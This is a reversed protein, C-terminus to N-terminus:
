QLAADGSIGTDLKELGARHIIIGITRKLLDSTARGVENIERIKEKNSADSNGIQELVRLYAAFLECTMFAMLAAVLGFLACLIRSLDPPIPWLYRIGAAGLAITFSHSLLRLMVM